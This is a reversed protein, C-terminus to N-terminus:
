FAPFIQVMLLVAPAAFVMSDFRDMIGGHGPLVNGFDKVGYQRKILSFALDGLETILGGILGYVALALYSVAIQKLTHVVLGYILCAIVGIVLGGIYGELSKNPSVNTIGRHKGLFVGSFYAGGDTIFAVVFPLVVLLKGYDMMRLEVLAGLFAPLLVGGFLCVAIQQFYVESETEHNGIAVVFLIVMLLLALFYTTQLELGIKGALWTGLPVLAAALVSIWKLIQPLDEEVARLLEFCSLAAILSVLIAMALSPMCLMVVMLLPVCIVAVLVRQLM